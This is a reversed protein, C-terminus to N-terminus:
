ISSDTDDKISEVRFVTISSISQVDAIFCFSPDKFICFNTLRSPELLSMLIRPNLQMKFQTVIRLIYIVDPLQM